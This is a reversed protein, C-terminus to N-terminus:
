TDDMFSTVSIQVIKSGGEVNDKVGRGLVRINNIFSGKNNPM